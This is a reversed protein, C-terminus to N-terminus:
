QLLTRHPNSSIISSPIIFSHKPHPSSLPLFSPYLQSSSAQSSFDAAKITSSCGQQRSAILHTGSPLSRIRVSPVLFRPSRPSRPSCQEQNSERAHLYGCPTRGAGPTDLSDLGDLVHLCHTTCGCMLGCLVVSRRPRSSLLVLPHHSLAHKLRVDLQSSRRARVTYNDM